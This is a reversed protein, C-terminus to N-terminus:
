EFGCHDRWERLELFYIWHRSGVLCKIIYGETNTNKISVEWISKSHRLPLCFTKCKSESGIVPNTPIPSGLSGNPMLRMNLVLSLNLNKIDEFSIIGLNEYSMSALTKFLLMEDLLKLNMVAETIRKPM